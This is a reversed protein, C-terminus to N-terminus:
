EGGPGARATAALDGTQGLWGPGDVQVSVVVDRGAVLCDVLAAGNDAVLRRAEACADDGRGLAGAAGLAALDAAAQAVRHAHFIAAVLGAAAGLTLLLSVCTAVLVSGAGRQTSM